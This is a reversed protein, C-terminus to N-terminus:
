ADFTVAVFLVQDRLIFIYPHFIDVSNDRACPTDDTVIGVGRILLEHEFFRDIFETASAMGLHNHLTRAMRNGVM